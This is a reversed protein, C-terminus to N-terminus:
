CTTSSRAPANRSGATWDRTSTIAFTAAVLAAPLAAMLSFLAVIRLHLQAAARGEIWSKWLTWAEICVVTVVGLILVGDIAVAPRVIAPTPELPTLNTILAFTAISAIIALGVLLLGVLRRTRGEGRSPRRPM